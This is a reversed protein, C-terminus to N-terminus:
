ASGSGLPPTPDPLAATDGDGGGRLVARAPKGAQRELRNGPLSAQDTDHALIQPRKATTGM